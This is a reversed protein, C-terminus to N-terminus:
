ITTDNEYGSEPNKKAGLYDAIQEGRIISSVRMLHGGRIPKTRESFAQNPNINLFAPKYFFSIM